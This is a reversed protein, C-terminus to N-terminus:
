KLPQSLQTETCTIFFSEKLITYLFSEVISFSLWLQANEFFFSDATILQEKPKELLTFIKKSSRIILFTALPHIILKWSHSACSQM